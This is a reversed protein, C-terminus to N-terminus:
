ARCIEGAENCQEASVLLDRSPRYEPVLRLITRMMSGLDRRGLSDRLSEIAAELTSRDISPSRVERLRDTCNGPTDSQIWSERMSILVEQLKDGQRLETFVVPAGGPHAGHQEILSRALEAVRLPAGMQPVLVNGSYIHSVASLLAQVAQESTIFYRLAEPHTVTVPGGRAIQDLFLPVVSGKSGLVNGLRVIRMCTTREEGFALVVLEAIRKSAGMVSIPDAAKDTSTLIMHEAGHLCAMRALVYTGLVNNEIAAFPNLELLPVHKFAAAHFIVDPSYQEFLRSLLSDDLVGGLVPVHEAANPLDRLERDIEYLANEGNDLLILRRVGSGALTRCLASGISGGAGTVLVCRGSLHDDLTRLHSDASGFLLNRGSANLDQNSWGSPM